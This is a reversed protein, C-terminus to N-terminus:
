GHSKKWWVGKPSCSVGMPVPWNRCGHCRTSWMVQHIHHWRRKERKTNFKHSNVRVWASCSMLCQESQVFDDVNLPSHLDIVRNEVTGKDTLLIDCFTLSPNMCFKTSLNSTYCPCISEIYTFICIWYNKLKEAIRGWQSIPGFVIYLVINWFTASLNLRFKSSM